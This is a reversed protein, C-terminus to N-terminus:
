KRSRGPTCGHCAYDCLHLSRRERQECSVEHKGIGLGQRVPQGLKQTDVDPGVRGIAVEDQHEHVPKKEPETVVEVIFFQQPAGMDLERGETLVLNGAQTRHLSTGDVPLGVFGCGVFRLRYCHGRRGPLSASEAPLVGTVQAPTRRKTTELDIKFIELCPQAAGRGVGGSSM